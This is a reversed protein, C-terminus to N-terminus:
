GTEPPQGCARGPGSVIKFQRNICKPCYDDRQDILFVDPDQPPFTLRARWQTQCCECELTYRGNRREITGEPGARDTTM